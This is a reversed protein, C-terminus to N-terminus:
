IDDTHLQQVDLSILFFIVRSLITPYKFSNVDEYSCPSLSAISDKILKRSSWVWIFIRVCVFLYFLMCEFLCKNMSIFRHISINHYTLLFLDFTNLTKNTRQKLLRKLTFHLKRGLFRKFRKFCQNKESWRLYAINLWIM